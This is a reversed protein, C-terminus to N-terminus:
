NVAELTAKYPSSTIIATQGQKRTKKTVGLRPGVHPVPMIDAPGLFSSTSAIPSEEVSTVPSNRTTPTSQNEQEHMSDHTANLSNGPMELDTPDAGAFDADSFIDPNYPVIGTSKFANVATNVTAAKLYATGFLKAIAYISVVRGPHSRLWIRVAEDYNLMLPRMFAVDLPQLRHTTHPPLCLIEVHNRTALEIVELNKVHTAHGDLILLIPTELSPRTHKLFHNFWDTFLHTQMWGSPHCAHISGPPAGDLLEEKWRVRPFILMPPVYNGAANMCIVSTM